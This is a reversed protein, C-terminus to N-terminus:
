RSSERGRDDSVTSYREYLTSDVDVGGPRATQVVVRYVPRAMFAAEACLAALWGLSLGSLGGLRAGLTALAVELWRM